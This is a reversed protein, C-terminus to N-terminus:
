SLTGQLGQDTTKKEM